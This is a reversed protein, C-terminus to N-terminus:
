LNKFEARRNKVRQLQVIDSPIRLRNVVVEMMGRKDSRCANIEGVFDDVDKSLGHAELKADCVQCAESRPLLRRTFLAHRLLDIRPSAMPQELVKLYFGNWYGIDGVLETEQPVVFLHELGNEIDSLVEQRVAM